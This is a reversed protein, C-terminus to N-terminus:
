ESVKCPATIFSKPGRDSGEFSVSIRGARPETWGSGALSRKRVSLQILDVFRERGVKVLDLMESSMVPTPDLAVSGVGACSGALLSVIEGAASERVRWGDGVVGLNLFLEAEEEHSFVPLAEDGGGCDVTLIETPYNGDKAVLWFRVALRRGPPQQTPRAKKEEAM